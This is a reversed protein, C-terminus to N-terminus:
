VEIQIRGRGTGYLFWARCTGEHSVMCPGYPNDPTCRKGFVPCDTPEVQGLTVEACRCGKPHESFTSDAKFNELESKFRGLASFQLYESRLWYGSDPIDAIGRWRKSGLAFVQELEAKAKENGDYRVVRMYTNEIRPQAELIQELVSAIAALQDVPEFGAAACAVGLKPLHEYIRLGTIVSAHGPLLFGQVDFGPLTPLLATAPPTFYNAEVISFNEPAGRRLLAAVAVVTTEFGVSFFVVQKQPHARALREADFVSYVARVDGGRAKADLLSMRVDGRKEGSLPISGPVGMMDGFSCLIVNPTLALRIAADIYEVDCVCVPCGPGALVRVNDPLLERLAYRGMEHEHTGCIHMLKVPRGLRSALDQIRLQLAKVLAADKYTRPDFGLRASGPEAHRHELRKPGTDVELM